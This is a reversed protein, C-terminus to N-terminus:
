VESFRTGTDTGPIYESSALSGSVVKHAENEIYQRMLACGCGGHELVQGKLKFVEDQLAIHYESLQRHQEELRELDIMQAEVQDRKRERCRLAAVRNQEMMKEKQDNKVTSRSSRRRSKSTHKTRESPYNEEKWCKGAPLSASEQHRQQDHPQGITDEVSVEALSFHIKSSKASAPMLPRSKTSQPPNSEVRRGNVCDDAFVSVQHWGGGDDALWMPERTAQETPYPPTPFPNWETPNQCKSLDLWNDDTTCHGATPADSHSYGSISSMWGNGLWEANEM